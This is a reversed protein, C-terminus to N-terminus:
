TSHVNSISLQVRESFLIAVVSQFPHWRWTMWDLIFHEPYEGDGNEVNGMGTCLLHRRTTKKDFRKAPAHSRPRSASKGEKETRTLRPNKGEGERASPMSPPPARARRAVEVLAHELPGLCVSSEVSSGTESHQVGEPVSGGGRVRGKPHSISFNHGWPWQTPLSLVPMRTPICRPSLLHRPGFTLSASGHVFM